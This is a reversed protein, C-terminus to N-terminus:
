EDWEHSEGRRPQAYFACESFNIPDIKFMVNYTIARLTLEHIYRISNTGSLKTSGTLPGAEVGFGGIFFALRFIHTICKKNPPPFIRGM